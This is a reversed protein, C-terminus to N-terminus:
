MWRCKHLLRMIQRKSIMEQRNKGRTHQRKKDRFKGIPNELHLRWGHRQVRKKKNSEDKEEKRQSQQKEKDAAANEGTQEKVESETYKDNLLKINVEEAQKEVLQKDIHQYKDAEGAVEEISQEQEELAAFPVEKSQKQHEDVKGEMNHAHVDKNQKQKSTANSCEEKGKETEEKVQALAPNIVRCEYQNHVQLRCERCYKPLYDYHIMVNVTRLDRTSENKIDM